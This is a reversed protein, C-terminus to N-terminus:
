YDDDDADHGHNYPHHKAVYALAEPLTGTFLETERSYRTVQVTTAGEPDYSVNYSGYRSLTSEMVSLNLTPRGLGWVAFWAEIETALAAVDADRELRLTPVPLSLTCYEDRGDIGNVDLLESGMLARARRYAETHNGHVKCLWLRLEADALIEEDTIEDLRQDIVKNSQDCIVKWEAQMTANRTRWDAVLEDIVAQDEHYGMIM